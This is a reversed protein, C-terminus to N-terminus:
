GAAAISPFSLPISDIRPLWVDYVTGSDYKRASCPASPLWSLITNLRAPCASVPFPLHRGSKGFTKLNEISMFEATSRFRDKFRNPLYLSLRSQIDRSLLTLPAHTSLLTHASRHDFFFFLSSGKSATVNHPLRHRILRNRRSVRTM